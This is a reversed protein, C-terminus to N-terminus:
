ERLHEALFALTREWALQAAKPDYADPRDPEFFWHGTGEYIYFTAPRGLAKLAAQLEEMGERPEYLDNEAFHGLFAATAPRLDPAYAGYFLVVATVNAPRMAALVSAWAAGFSFGIVGLHPSQARRVLFDVAEGAATQVHDSWETEATRALEQAEDITKAVRGKFLDPAFAVYAAAALRDCVSRFTDNLGWWAHLVLVGPGGGAHAALYGNYKEGEGYRIMEGAM